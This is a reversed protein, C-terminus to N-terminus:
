TELDHLPTRMFIQSPRVLEDGVEYRRVRGAEAGDRRLAGALSSGIAPQTQAVVVVIAASISAAAGRSRCRNAAGACPCPHSASTVPAARETPIVPRFM